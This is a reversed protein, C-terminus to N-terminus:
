KCFYATENRLVFMDLSIRVCSGSSRLMRRTRHLQIWRGLTEMDRNHGELRPDVTVIVHNHVCEILTKVVFRTRGVLRRRWPKEMGLPVHQIRFLQHMRGVPGKVFCLQCALLTVKSDRVVIDSVRGNSVHAVFADM